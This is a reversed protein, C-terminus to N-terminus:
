PFVLWERPAPGAPLGPFGPPSAPGALAQPRRYPRFPLTWALAYVLPFGPGLWDVASSLDAPASAAPAPRAPQGHWVPQPVVFAVGFILAITLAAAGLSVAPAAARTGTGRTAAGFRAAPIVARVHGLPVAARAHRALGTRRLRGLACGSRQEPHHARRSALQARAPEAVALARSRRPAGRRLAPDAVRQGAM